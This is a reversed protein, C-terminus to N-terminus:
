NLPKYSFICSKFDNLLCDNFVLSCDLLDSIKQTDNRADEMQCYKMMSLSKQYKRELYITKDEYIYNHFIEADKKSNTILEYCKKDKDRRIQFSKINSSEAIFELVEKTGLISFRYCYREPYFEVCGDGDFYGRVFHSILENPVGTPKTLILSKKEVCGHSILHNVFKISSVFARVAKYEKGNLHIIRENIPATSGVDDLFNQVHYKDDIKLSLELYGGKENGTKDHNKRVYGDAFLFGLWYAKNESDIDKFYDENVQNKRTSSLFDHNKLTNKPRKYYGLSKLINSITGGKTHLTSGIVDYTEGDNYMKIMLEKEEETFIRKKAM